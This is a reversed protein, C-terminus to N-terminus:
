RLLEPVKAVNAAIRRAEALVWLRTGKVWEQEGIFGDLGWVALREKPGDGNWTDFGSWHGIESERKSFSRSAFWGRWASHTATSSAQPHVASAGELFDFLGGGKLEVADQSACVVNKDGHSRRMEAAQRGCIGLARRQHADKGTVAPEPALNQARPM